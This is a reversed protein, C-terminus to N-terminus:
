KDIIKGKEIEIVKNVFKINEKKHTVLIITIKKNFSKINNFFDNFFNTETYSDLSSTPEDMFLISPNTYLARALGIRQIQGGSLLAGREGINTHIGDKLSDVFYKLQSIKLATELHEENYCDKEELTVNYAISNDLLSVSQPLYSVSFSNDELLKEIPENKVNIQGSSPRIIGLLLNLLTTKGSGSQGIIGVVDNEKIEFNINHLVQINSSPYTFSVDKCQIINEQSELNQFESSHQTNKKEFDDKFYILDDHIVNLSASTFNFIHFNTIIRMISPMIRLATIGFISLVILLDSDNRNLLSYVFVMVVLGAIVISEVIFQPSQALFFDRKSANVFNKLITQHNSKFFNEKKFVKIEKINAVMESVSKHLLGMNRVFQEGVNKSRNKIFRLYLFGILFYFTFSSITIITEQYLLYGIIALLLFIETFLNFLSNLLGVFVQQPEQNANKILEASNRLNHKVYEGKIYSDYIKKGLDMRLHHTLNNRYILILIGIFNKLLIFFVILISSYFIINEDRLGIIKFFTHFFNNTEEQKGLMEIFNLIMFLGIMELFSMILSLFFLSLVKIKDSKSEVLNLVKFLIPLIFSNRM